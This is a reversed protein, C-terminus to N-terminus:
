IIFQTMKASKISDEYSEFKLSLSMEQHIIICLTDNSLHSGLSGFYHWNLKKKNANQM